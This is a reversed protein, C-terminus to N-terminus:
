RNEKARQLIPLFGACAPNAGAGLACGSKEGAALRTPTLAPTPGRRAVGGGRGDCGRALPRQSPTFAPIVSGSHCEDSRM